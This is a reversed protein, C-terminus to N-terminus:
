SNKANFKNVIKVIKKLENTKIKEHIPLSLLKKHIKKANVLINKFKKNKYYSQHPILIPTEIKSEIKNLELFKKLKDRKEHKIMYLYNTSFCNKKLKPLLIEEPLHSSYFKAIQARKNLIKSLDKFKTILISAQLPDPKFNLSPNICNVKNVTGAYRLTKCSNYLKTNNTAIAGLDGFSGFVKMPNLSFCSIDGFTGLMKNNIKSGFSHACDEILFLGNKKAIKKILRINTPRGSYHVALIAKTNKNILKDISSPLINLDDGIDAFVPRYGNLLISNAPTVWSLPTTIIESNSRIMLSKIAIYLSDTGSGTLIVHKVKLYKKIKTELESIVPGLIVRGDKIIKKINKLYQNLKKKNNEEIVAIRIKKM